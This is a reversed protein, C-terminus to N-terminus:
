SARKKRARKKPRKTLERRLAPDEAAMAIGEALDTLGRIARVLKRLTAADLNVSVSRAARRKKTAM